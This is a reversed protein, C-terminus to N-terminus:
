FFSPPSATGSPAIAPSICLPNGTSFIVILGVQPRFDWFRNGLM